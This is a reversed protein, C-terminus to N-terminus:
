ELTENGKLREKLRNLKFEIWRYIKILPIRYILRLQYLMVYVDGIEEVVNEIDDNEIATILEKLEEIAKEKQHDRGYRKIVRKFFDTNETLINIQM